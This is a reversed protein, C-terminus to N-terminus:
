IVGAIGEANSLLLFTVSFDDFDLILFLEPCPLSWPPYRPLLSPTWKGVVHRHLTVKASVRARKSSRMNEFAALDVKQPRARKQSLNKNKEKRKRRKSRAHPAGEGKQTSSGVTPM